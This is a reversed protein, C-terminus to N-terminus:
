YFYQLAPKRSSKGLAAKAYLRGGHFFSLEASSGVAYKQFTEAVETCLNKLHWKNIPVSNLELHVMYAGDLYKLYTLEYQHHYKTQTSLATKVYAVKSNDSLTKTLFTSKRPSQLRPFNQLDIKGLYAVTSFGLVLILATAFVSFILWRTKRRFSSELTHVLQRAQSDLREAVEGARKEFFEQEKKVRKDFSILSEYYLGQLSEPAKGAQTNIPNISNAEKALNELGALEKELQLIKQRYAEERISKEGFLRIEKPERNLQAM